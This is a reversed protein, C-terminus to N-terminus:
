FSIYLLSCCHRKPNRCFMPKIIYLHKQWQQAPSLCVCPRKQNKYAMSSLFKPTCLFNSPSGSHVPSWLALRYRIFNYISYSSSPSLLPCKSHHCKEEWTVMVRASASSEHPIASCPFCEILEKNQKSQM